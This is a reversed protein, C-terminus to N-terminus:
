GKGYHRHSAGRIRPAAELSSNDSTGGAVVCTMVAEGAGHEPAGNAVVFSSFLVVLTIPVLLWPFVSWFGQSKKL